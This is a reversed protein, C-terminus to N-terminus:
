ELPVIAEGYLKLEELLYKAENALGASAFLENIRNFYRKAAPEKGGLLKNVRFEEWQQQEQPTLSSPFNRAKYLPLLYALREDAFDLKLKALDNEDAARVVRTKTKDSDDLFGDYLLEDVKQGDVALTSQKEPGMIQLAAILKDGFDELKQLKSYHNKIAKMDLKLRQETAKDIVRLDGAVAPAKNYALQKVPFYPANQDRDKWRKALQVPSFDKFEDPDVRLDYVLAAQRDPNTAVMAVITTKEFDGSYRGSTYIIPKASTVLPAVKNKSRINLLYDFLKSQKSKLLKALDMLANVDSLADHANAHKLKNISALPELRNSPKGDSAFPWKIGDPRLARTMRTVDLLDWTSRGDKWSWEYADYFNRWLLFRIFENDFRLNNYGVFITDPVALQESFFKAFEAETIGNTRTAQPTIGTVLIADPEPLIDESMKILLNDPDGIPKLDM